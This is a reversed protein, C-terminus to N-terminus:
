MHYELLDRSAPDLAAYDPIVYGNGEADRVYVRNGEMHHVDHPSRL